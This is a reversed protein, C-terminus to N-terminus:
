FDDDDEDWEDDEDDLIGGDEDWEDEEEDDWEVEDDDEEEGLDPDSSTNPVDDDEPDEHPLRYEERM